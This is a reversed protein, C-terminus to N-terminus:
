EPFLSHLLCLINQHNHHTPAMPTQLDPFVCSLNWNRPICMYPPPIFCSRPCIQSYLLFAPATSAFPVTSLSSSVLLTLSFCSSSFSSKHPYFSHSDFPKPSIVSNCSYSRSKCRFSYFRSSCIASINSPAMPSSSSSPSYSDVASDSTSLLAWSFGASTNSCLKESFVAFLFFFLYNYIIINILSKSQEHLLRRCINQFSGWGLKSCSSWMVCSSSVGKGRSSIGSSMWCWGIM